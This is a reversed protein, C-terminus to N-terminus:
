KDEAIWEMLTPLTTAPTDITFSPIITPVSFAASFNQSSVSLPVYEPTVCLSWPATTFLAQVRGLPGDIFSVEQGSPHSFVIKYLSPCTTTKPELVISQYGQPLFLESQVKRPISLYQPLDGLGLTTLIEQDTNEEHIKISIWTNYLFAYPLPGRKLRIYINGDAIRVADLEWKTQEDKTANFSITASIRGDSDLVGQMSYVAYDDTNANKIITFSLLPIQRFYETMRTIVRIPTNRYGIYGGVGGGLLVVGVICWLIIKIPHLRMWVNARFLLSPTEESKKEVMADITHINENKIVSDVDSVLKGSYYLTNITEEIYAAEYGETILVRIIEARSHKKQALRIITEELVQDSM